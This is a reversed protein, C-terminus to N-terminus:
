DDTTPKITCHFLTTKVLAWKKKKLYIRPHTLEIHYFSFNPVGLVFGCIWRYGVLLVLLLFFFLRHIIVFHFLGWLM